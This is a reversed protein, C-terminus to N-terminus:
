KKTKRKQVNILVQKNVVDDDVKVHIEEIQADFPALVLNEMKMAELILIKDGMKVKQGKKVMIKKINGSIFAKIINPDSPEWKKRNNEYKKTYTTRYKGAELHLYHFKPEKENTNEM